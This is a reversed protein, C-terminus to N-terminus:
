LHGGGAVRTAAGNVVRVQEGDVISDPPSDIIREGAQLGTLVEVQTGWDRGLVLPSLHACDKDDLTAVRLGEARFLLASVPIILAPHEMPLKLHVQAYAGPLLEGKHNDIDVEVMLTRTDIDIANSTRVVKGTFIRGPYEALTLDTAVGPKAAAVYQEPVNVFIRLTRIYSVHFLERPTSGSGMSANGSYGTASGTGGSSGSDILQGVDTNRVTVIGDFPAYVREFSQLELLHGLSAKASALAAELASASYTAADTSQKSVADTAVLGQYRQATIQALRLNAQATVVDARAQKVQQDLEPTEIVALLEGKRVHSGIDHYWSRVYGNTRAYIPADLYAQITGPLVLERTPAGPQATTVAVTPVAMQETLTRLAARARVRPLIGAVIVLVALLAMGLLIARFRRRAQPTSRIEPQPVPGGQPTAPTTSHKM